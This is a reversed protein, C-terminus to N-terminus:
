CGDTISLVRVPNIEGFINWFLKGNGLVRISLTEPANERSPWRTVNEPFNIPRASSIM